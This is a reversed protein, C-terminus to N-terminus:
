IRGGERSSPRRLKRAMETILKRFQPCKTTDARQEKGLCRICRAANACDKTRHGHEGCKFCEDRRDSGDCDKAIHGPALCRFCRTINYRERVRCRIWRIKVKGRETWINAM